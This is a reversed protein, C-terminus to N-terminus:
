WIFFKTNIVIPSIINENIRLAKIMYADKYRYHRNNSVIM